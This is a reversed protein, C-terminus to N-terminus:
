SGRLKTCWVWGEGLPSSPKAISTSVEATINAFMEFLVNVACPPSWKLRDSTLLAFASRVNAFLSRFPPKAPRM